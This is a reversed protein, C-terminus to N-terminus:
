DSRSVAIAIMETTVGSLQVGFPSANLEFRVSKRLGPCDSRGTSGISRAYRGDQIVDIWAEDSVSVQYIGPRAVAPLRVIGGFWHEAKPKRGPPMAFAANTDPQLQLVFAGNPIPALTAGAAVAAKNTAAFWARERVMSWGFKDCGDDAYAAALLAGLMGVRLVRQRIM